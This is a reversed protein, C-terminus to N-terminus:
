EQDIMWKRFEKREQKSAKAYWLKLQSVFDGTIQAKGSGDVTIVAESFNTSGPKSFVIGHESNYTAVAKEIDAYPLFGGNGPLVTSDVPISSVGSSIIWQVENKRFASQAVKYSIFRPHKLDLVEAKDRISVNFLLPKSELLEKKSGNKLVQKYQIVVQNLGVPLNKIPSEDSQVGNVTLVSVSKPLALSASYASSASLLLAVATINILKM